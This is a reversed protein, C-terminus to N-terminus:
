RELKGLIKYLLKGNEEFKIDMKESMAMQQTKMDSMDERIYEIDKKIVTIDATQEKDIKKNVESDKALAKTTIDTKIYFTIGAVLLSFGITLIKLYDPISLKLRSGNGRREKGSYNVTKIDM